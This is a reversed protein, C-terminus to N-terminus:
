QNVSLKTEGESIYLSADAIAYPYVILDKTTAKKKIEVLLGAQTGILTRGTDVVDEEPVARFDIM